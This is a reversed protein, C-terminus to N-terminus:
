EEVLPVRNTDDSRQELLAPNISVQAYGARGTAEIARQSLASLRRQSEAESIRGNKILQYLEMQESRIHDCVTSIGHLIAAKNAHGGIFDWGVLAALLLGLPAGAWVTPFIALVTPISLSLTVASLQVLSHRSQYMSALERYYRAQRDIDLLESRAYTRIDDGVRHSSGSASMIAGRLSEM